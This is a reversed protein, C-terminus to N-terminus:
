FGFVNANAFLNCWIVFSVVLARCRLCKYVCNVFCAIKENNNNITTNLSSPHPNFFNFFFFGGGVSMLIYLVSEYEHKTQLVCELAIPLVNLVHTHTIHASHM